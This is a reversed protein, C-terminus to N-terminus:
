IQLNSLLQRLWGSYRNATLVPALRLVMRHRKFFSASDKRWFMWYETKWFPIGESVKQSATKSLIYSKCCLLPLLMPSAAFTWRTEAFFFCRDWAVRPCRRLEWMLVGRSRSGCDWMGRRPKRHWRGRRYLNESSESPASNTTLLYFEFISSSSANLSFVYLVNAPTTRPKSFFQPISNKGFYLFFSSGKWYFLSYKPAFFVWKPPLISVYLSTHGHSQFNSSTAHFSPSFLVLIQGDFFLKENREFFPGKEFLTNSDSLFLPFFGSKLWLIFSFLPFFLPSILISSNSQALFLVSSVCSAQM